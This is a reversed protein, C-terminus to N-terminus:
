QDRGPTHAEIFCCNCPRLDGYRVIRADMEAVTLSPSTM